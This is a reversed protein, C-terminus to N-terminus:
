FIRFYIEDGYNLFAHVVFVYVAEMSLECPLINKYRNKQKNEPHSGVDTKNQNGVKALEQKWFMM